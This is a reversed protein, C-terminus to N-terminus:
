WSFELGALISPDPATTIPGTVWLWGPPLAEHGSCRHTVRPELGVGWWTIPHALASDATHGFMLGPTFCGGTQMRQM